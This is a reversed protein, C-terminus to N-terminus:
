NCSKIVDHDSFYINKATVKTFFEEILTKKIPVFFKLSGSLHQAQNVILVHNAM